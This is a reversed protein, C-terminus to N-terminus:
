VKEPVVSINQSYSINLQVSSIVNLFLSFGSGLYAQLYIKVCTMQITSHVVCLQQYSCTAVSHTTDTQQNHAVALTM